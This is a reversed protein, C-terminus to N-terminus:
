SPAGWRVRNWDSSDSFEELLGMARLRARLAQRSQQAADAVLGGAAALDPPGCDILLGYRNALFEIFQQFSLPKRSSEAELSATAALVELARDNLSMHFPVTKSGGRAMMGKPDENSPLAGGGLLSHLLEIYRGFARSSLIAEAVINRAISELAAPNGAAEDLLPDLGELVVGPIDDDLRIGEIKQSWVVALAMRTAPEAAWRDLSVLVNELEPKPEHVQQAIAEAVEWSISMMIRNVTYVALQRRLQELSMRGLDKAAVQEKRGANVFVKPSSECNQEVWAADDASASGKYDGNAWRSDRDESGRSILDPQFRQWCAACDSPLSRGEVLDNMVRMGRVFYLAAHLALAAEIMEGLAAHGISEGRDL